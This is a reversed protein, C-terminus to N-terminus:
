CTMKVCIIYISLRTMVAFFTNRLSVFEQQLRWNLVEDKCVMHGCNCIFTYFLCNTLKNFKNLEAETIWTLEYFQWLCWFWNETYFAQKTWPKHFVFLLVVEFLFFNFCLFKDESFYWCEQSAYFVNLPQLFTEDLWPHLYTVESVSLCCEFSSFSKCLLLVTPSASEGAMHEWGLADSGIVFTSVTTNFHTM